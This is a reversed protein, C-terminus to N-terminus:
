KFTLKASKELKFLSDIPVNALNKHLSGIKSNEEVLQPVSSDHQKAYNELSSGNQWIKILPAREKQKQEVPLDFYLQNYVFSPQYDHYSGIVAINKGVESANSKVLDNFLVPLRPWANQLLVIKAGKKMMLEINEKYVEFHHESERNDPFMESFYFSHINKGKIKDSVDLVPINHLHNFGPDVNLIAVQYGQNEAELAFQPVQQDSSSGSGVSLIFLLKDNAHGQADKFFDHLNVVNRFRAIEHTLKMFHIDKDDLDTMSIINEVLVRAIPYPYAYQKSLENALYHIRAEIQKDDPLTALQKDFEDTFPIKQLIGAVSSMLKDPDIEVAKSDYQLLAKEKQIANTKEANQAEINASLQMALNLQESESSAFNDTRYLLPKSKKDESSKSNNNSNEEDDPGKKM